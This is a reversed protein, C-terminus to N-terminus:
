GISVKFRRRAIADYVVEVGHRLPLFEEFHSVDEFDDQTLEGVLYRSAPRVGMHRSWDEYDCFGKTKQKVRLQYGAFREEDNNVVSRVKGRLSDVGIYAMNKPSGLTGHLVRRGKDGQDVMLTYTSGVPFDYTTVLIHECEFNRDISSNRLETLWQAISEDEGAIRELDVLCSRDGNSNLRKVIAGKNESDKFAMITSLM